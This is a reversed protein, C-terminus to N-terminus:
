GGSTIAAAVEFPPAVYAGTLWQVSEPRTLVALDVQMPDLQELLRHQRHCCADIDVCYLDNM